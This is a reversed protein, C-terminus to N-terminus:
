SLEEFTPVKENRQYHIFEGGASKYARLGHNKNTTLEIFPQARPANLWQEGDSKSRRGFQQAGVDGRPFYLGNDYLKPGPAATPIPTAYEKFIQPSPGAPVVVSRGAERLAATQQALITGSMRRIVVPPVFTEASARSQTRAAPVPRPLAARV